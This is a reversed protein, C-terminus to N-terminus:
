IQKVEEGRFRPERLCGNGGDAKLDLPLLTIKADRPTLKCFVRRAASAVSHRGPPAAYRNVTAAPMRGATSGPMMGASIARAKPLCRRNMSEPGPSLIGGEVAALIAAAVKQCVM